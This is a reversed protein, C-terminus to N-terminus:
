LKLMDPHKFTTSVRIWQILSHMIASHLDEVIGYNNSNVHLIHDALNEKVVMGGDFGVLAITTYGKDNAARLGRIINPSNGSSSIAIAVARRSHCSEIQFSFVHEYGFDNAVATLLAQNSGLNIVNTYNKCDQKVGKWLDCVFHEAIAASGGNGMVLIPWEAKGANRLIAGVRDTEEASLTQSAECLDSIYKRTFNQPTM